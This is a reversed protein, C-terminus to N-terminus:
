KVMVAKGNIVYVGKLGNLSTAERNILKGDVSYITFSKGSNLIENIANVVDITATVPKSETGNAYVATVAFVYNGSALDKLEATTEATNAVAAQDVYVNYSVPASGGSAQYKINGLVVCLAGDGATNNRIAFYKTGEPLQATANVWGATSLTAEAVKTFSAVNADTSSALVEYSSPGYEVSLAGISFSIEQAVGPLVPSILWDDNDPYSQGEINYGSILYTEDLSGNPGNFEPNTIGYATPNFVQWAKVLGDNALQLDQFLSGKTKGNNNILTWDGVLGTENAGNEYAAFDETIEQAADAAPANWSLTVTGDNAQQAALDTPAAATSEKVTIIAEDTNNDLNLDNGYIVEAALTVDGAEDFISTEYEMEMEISSFAPIVADFTKDYFVKDNASLKLTFGNASNQANNSLKVQLKATNGAVVSAPANLAVQVDHEYLDVIRINDFTLLDGWTYVYQFTSWDIDEITPTAFDASFGVQAYRGNQLSTLPVMITTYDTGVAATSITKLEEGNVSGIINVNKITASKVDFLLTPNAATKLDIKGSNFWATGPEDMATLILAVNDDDSSEESVFVESNDAYEWVYHFAPGSFGEIVPLTYSAGVLTTVSLAAGQGVENVPMVAWYKYGQDGEDSNFTYDFNDENVVNGLQEDFDLYSGFLSEVVKLSWVEYNVKTPDVFGGNQGVDGVKKWNFTLSTGKDTAALEELDAPADIGVYASVKDSKLGRGEANYPIVQYTYIQSGELDADTWSQASGAAVNEITNVISDNRLIEIKTLNGTLDAGSVTKAPAIFSITAENAGEAGAKVALDAVAAPAAPNAGEEISLKSVQLRWMDAESIAHIAVVYTGTEAVTFAGEFDAYEENTVTTAPIATINLADISKGVKVEFAEPYDTGGYALASVLVDYSKGAELNLPLSVLYDDAADAAYSYFAGNEASWSWTKGDNNADIAQFMDIVGEQTFDVVYPVDVSASIFVPVEASKLGIGYANYPIVQYVYTGATLTPDNDVYSQESGPAVDELTKIVAGDRLIEIKTLNATLDEGAVTKVPAKFSVTAELKNDGAVVALDTVAAPATPEAGLEISLSRVMLRYMDPESIAHIALYYAGDEAVSFSEAFDINETSAVETSGIITTSLGAATAEKGILVEFKEPYTASASAVTLALNYSKGGLLQVPLILYDDGGTVGDSNYTYYVNYSASWTWTKGDDNADLIVFNDLSEATSFDTAFPISVPKTKLKLWQIETENTEGGGLYISKVGIRDYDFPFNLYVLKCGMYVDFDYADNLTYPIISIDESLAGYAEAPFTIPQIDGDVDSFFQYFLKDEILENGEADVAPIDAIVYGYGKSANYPSVTLVEPAAPTVAVDPIVPKDKSLVIDGYFELYYVKDEAANALLFNTATLTQAAADYTMKFDDLTSGDTTGVGFMSYSGYAGIYQLGSFTVTTGDITGKIWSEPFNEFVGSVYVDNGVFAVKATSKYKDETRKNVGYNYWTEVTADEPLEILQPAVYSDDYTFVTNYDGYYSFTNDDTWFCAVINNEDTGDLSITNGDITLTIASNDEVWGQGDVYSAKSVYLGYNYNTNFSVVQGSAITIKNDAKTGKVWAGTSVHSIFDKIYVDGSTTEVIETMGSQNEYYLSQNYFYYGIGTRAYFKSEGEDPATIIGNADIQPARNVSSMHGKLPKTSLHRFAATAVNNKLGKGFKGNQVKTLNNSMFKELADKDKQVNDFAQVLLDNIQSTHKGGRFAIGVPQDTAKVKALEAKHKATAFNEAKLAKNANFVQQKAAKKAEFTQAQAPIALWLAVLVLFSTFKKSM